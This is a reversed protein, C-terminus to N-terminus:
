SVRVGRVAFTPGPREGGMGPMAPMLVAIIYSEEEKEIFAKAQPSSDAEKGMKARVLAAKLPAASQWRILFDMTPTGGSPSMDGGGMGGGGGMSGGAGQSADPMAGGGAGGGSSRGGGRGGRGGGGGMGGGMGIPVSATKAWPSDGMIRQIDKENWQSFEKEWPDSAFAPLPLAAAGWALLLSRRDVVLM